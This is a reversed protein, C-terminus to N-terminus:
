FQKQLLIPVWIDNVEHDSPMRFLIDREAFASRVWTANDNNGKTPATFYSSSGILTGRLSEVTLGNQFATVNQQIESSTAPRGLLTMFADSIEQTQKEPSNTFALAVNFASEGAALASLWGQIESELPARGLVDNYLGIVWGRGPLNNTFGGHNNVYEPAALFNATVQEDRFQGFLLGNVWGELGAIDAARRLYTLYLGSVFDIYHAQVHALAQAVAVLVTGSQETVITGQAPATFTSGFTTALIPNYIGATEHDSAARGLVDALASAVWASDQGNGETGRFYYEASGVFDGRLEEVRLGHQFANFYANIETQTPTRGLFTLFAATINQHEKEPGGVFSFAVNLPSFGSELAAIWNQVETNSPARGLVDNYLGMIWTAGGTLGNPTQLVFGGHHNVYENSDLFNAAVQEETMQTTFLNNVWGNLGGVDAARRLYTVYLQSVYDFYHEQSHTLLQAVALLEAPATTRTISATTAATTNALSYNGADTGAITIGTVTVPKGHGSNPDAFTAMATETLTDGSVRNDMFTVTARTTGDFVKDIGTASVTLPRPTIGATATPPTLQYNGANTGSLSLGSVTVTLNSGVNKSPFSGAATGSLTVSDGMVVGVLSAGSTQVAASATGDYIKTTATIGTVSIPRRNVTQSLVASGSNFTSDGQYGATITHTGPLLQTATTTYTTVGGANLSGMGLTASGDTFTVMGTPTGTGSPGGLTATFTVTNGYVSPNVSSAVTVTPSAKGVTQTIAASTSAIFNADGSYSISISRTGITLSSVAFTASGASLTRSTVTNSGDVLAVTGTPTGSIQPSVTATFTVLQGFSSPNPTTTVTTSTTAKTIVIMASSDTALRYNSSGGYSAVVTYTGASVPPNPSTVNNSDTYAFTPTGLNEGFVGTVTGTAPEPMGNYVFTGGMSKITPTAPQVIFPVLQSPGSMFSGDGNYIAQITHTAAFLMSTTYSADGSSDLSMTAVSTGGDLFTVTGTPTGTAPAVPSVNATFTVTDGFTSSNVSSTLNTTITAQNVTQTIASSTSGNFNADGSYAATIAHNGVALSSTMFAASGGSLTATGLTAAGDLFTVTGTPTGGGAIWIPGTLTANLHNATGDFATNGSGEDFPYDVVLGPESGSLMETMTAQIDAQSRAVNWINVDDIFGNFFRRTGYTASDDNHKGIRIFNVGNQSGETYSVNGVLAGNVYVKFNGTTYVVAVHYWHDAVFSVGPIPRIAATSSPIEVQLQSGTSWVNVGFGHGGFGPNDNSIANNPFSTGDSRLEPKVWAEVTLPLTNMVSTTPSLAFDSIGDFRLASGAGTPTATASEDPTVTATFTVPQGFVTPNVSSTVTTQSNAQAVTQSVATSTSSAFNADGGFTVTIPDTGAPLATTTFTAASGNLLLRGINNAAGEAFWIGDPRSALLQPASDATPVDIEAFTGSTTVRGLKNALQETFYMNGDSAPVIGFPGSNPTPTAFETFSGSTTIRGIQSVNHETFWLKGDPGVEIHRPSSGATPITFQTFSGSTTIRGIKNANAETFWMNGDPGHVMGVPGSSATPVTFEIISGSTTIRGIKNGSFESFWLNGDPGPAIDRPSSGATPIPFETISGSTTIRGIQNANRETFWTNNDPGNRLDFPDSNATPLAFETFTGSTTLRGINNGNQETFWLNGDPGTIIAFPGSNATAIPFESFRNLTGTGIQTGNDFFTATGTPTGTAPSVPTVTAVMTVPQGFASPDPLTALTTTTGTLLTRDELNELVPRRRRPRVCRYSVEASSPLFWRALRIFM